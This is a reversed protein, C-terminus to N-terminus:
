RFDRLLPLRTELVRGLSPDVQYNAAWDGLLLDGVVMVGTRRRQEPVGMEKLRRYVPNLPVREERIYQNVESTSWDWLPAYSSDGKDKRHVVGHRPHLLARRAKSEDGRLGYLTVNSGFHEKAKDLYNDILLKKFDIEKAKRAHAARNEWAGSAEMVDLPSPSTQISTVTVGWLKELAKIYPYTQSYVLGTDFFAIRPNEQVQALLHLLVTSDKGGSFTLFADPHQTLWWQIRELAEQKRASTSNSAVVNCSKRYTNM